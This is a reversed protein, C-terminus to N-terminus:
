SRVRLQWPPSSCDLETHVATIGAPRFTPVTGTITVIAEFWGSALRSLAARRLEGVFLPVALAGCPTSHRVATRKRACASLEGHFLHESGEQMQAPRALEVCLDRIDTVYGRLNDDIARQRLHNVAAVAQASM